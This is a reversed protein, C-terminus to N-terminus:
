VDILVWQWESRADRCCLMLFWIYAFLRPPIRGVGQLHVWTGIQPGQYGVADVAATFLVNDVNRRSSSDM